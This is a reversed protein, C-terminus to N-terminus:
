TKLDTIMSFRFDRHVVMYQQGGITSCRISAFNDFYNKKVKQLNGFATKRVNSKPISIGREHYELAIIHVKKAERRFLDLHIPIDSIRDRNSYIVIAVTSFILILYLETENM